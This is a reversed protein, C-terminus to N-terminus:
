VPCAEQRQPALRRVGEGSGGRIPWSLRVMSDHIGAFGILMRRGRLEQGEVLLGTQRLVPVPDLLMQRVTRAASGFQGGELGEVEVGQLRGWGPALGEEM